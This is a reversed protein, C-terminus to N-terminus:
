EVKEALVSRVDGKARALEVRSLNYQYVAEVYNDSAIALRNQAEVVERNDAVGQQYRQQALRLEEEALRLNKEAVTIQANRSSADQRALRLESSIQLELSHLRLEQARQRSLAARRDADSKLGDFIPVSVTAGAFWADKKGDEFADAGAYGYEGGLSLAPLRQFKATRVDLKSQEVARQARLWDARQEFSSKEAGFVLSSADVRRVAFDALKMTDAPPIDLLRKLLLESQYLTTEQQLRAQKALELQASARTVDIQTAVGAKLQNTALEFLAQARTINADLVDLRRLNRLHTFYTQAVSSLISQVTARYDAEAVEVGAKASKVASLQQFNLVNYNGTLKGDFRNAPAGATALKNAVAVAQTRRQQASLGINPLIGVRAQNAQELAQASAERSLLVTTNAGEVSALAKELTLAAGSTDASRVSNLGALLVLVLSSRRLRM